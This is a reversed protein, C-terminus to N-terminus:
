RNAGLNGLNRWAGVAQAAAESSLEAPPNQKGGAVGARVERKQIMVRNRTHVMGATHNM